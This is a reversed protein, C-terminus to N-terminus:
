HNIMEKIQLRIRIEWNKYIMITAMRNIMIEFWPHNQIPNTIRDIITKNFSNLKIQNIMENSILIM